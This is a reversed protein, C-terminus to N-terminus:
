VDRAPGAREGREIRFWAAEPPAGVTGETLACQAFRTGASGVHDVWVPLAFPGRDDRVLWRAELHAEEARLARFEDVLHTSEGLALAGWRTVSAPNTSALLLRDVLPPQHRDAGTRVHIALRVDVLLEQFDQRKNEDHGLPLNRKKVRWLTRLVRSRAPTSLLGVALEAGEHALRNGEGIASLLAGYVTAPPPAPLTELYERAWPSRFGAVPAALYCACATM